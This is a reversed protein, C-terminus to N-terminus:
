LILLFLYYSLVYRCPHLLMLVHVFTLSITRETSLVVVVFVLLVHRVSLRSGLEIIGRCFLKSEMESIQVFLHVFHLIATMIQCWCRPPFCKQLFAHPVGIVHIADRMVRWALQHRRPAALRVEILAIGDTLLGGVETSRVGTRILIQVKAAGHTLRVLLQWGRRDVLHTTGKDDGGIRISVARTRCARLVTRSLSFSPAM